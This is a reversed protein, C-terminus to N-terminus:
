GTDLVYLIHIFPSSKPVILKLNDQSTDIRPPLIFSMRRFYEYLNTYHKVHFM